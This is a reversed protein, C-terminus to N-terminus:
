PEAHRWCKIHTKIRSHSRTSAQTVSIKSIGRVALTSELHQKEAHSDSSETLNSHTESSRISFSQLERTPQPSRNQPM